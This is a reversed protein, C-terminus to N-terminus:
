FLSVPFTLSLHNHLSVFLYMRLPLISVADPSVRILFPQVSKETLNNKVVHRFEAGFDYEECAVLTHPDLQGSALQSSIVSSTYTTTSRESRRASRGSPSKDDIKTPQSSKNTITNLLKFMHKSGCTCRDKPMQMEANEDKNCSQSRESPDLHGDVFYGEDDVWHRGLLQLCSDTLSFVFLLSSSPLYM